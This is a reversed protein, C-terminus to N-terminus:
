IKLLVPFFCVGEPDLVIGPGEILSLLAAHLIQLVQSFYGYASAGPQNGSQGGTLEVLMPDRHLQLDLSINLCPKKKRSERHFIWFTFKKSPASGNLSRKLTGENLISGVKLPGFLPNEKIQNFDIM